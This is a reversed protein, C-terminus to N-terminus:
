LSGGFVSWLAEVVGDHDNDGTVHDAAAVAEPVANAMAFSLGAERLMPVDNVDDGIAVVRSAPVEWRELLWRLATWKTAGPSHVELAWSGTGRPHELPSVLAADDLAKLLKARGHRVRSETDVTYVVLPGESLQPFDGPYYTVAELNQVVYPVSLARTREAESIFIEPRNLPRDYLVLPVLGSERFCRAARCATRASLPNAYLTAHRQGDKILAGGACIVWPHAHELRQVIPWATRWRRGTCLVTRVGRAALLAVLRKFADSFRGKSDLVTGDLDLAVVDFHETSM